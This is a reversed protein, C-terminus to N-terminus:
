PFAGVRGADVRRRGGGSLGSGRPPASRRAAIVVAGRSRGRNGTRTATAARAAAAQVPDDAGADGSGLTAADSGGRSRGVVTSGPAVPAPRPEEPDVPDPM